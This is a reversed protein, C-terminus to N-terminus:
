LKPTIDVVYTQCISMDLKDHALRLFIAAWILTAKEAEDTYSLDFWVRFLEEVELVDRMIAAREEEGGGVPVELTVILVPDQHSFSCTDGRVGKIQRM